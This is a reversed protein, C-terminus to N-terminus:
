RWYKEALKFGIIGFIIDFIIDINEELFLPHGTGFGLIYEAIEFVIEFWIFKKFDKSIYKYFIIGKLFHAFSWYNILILESRYLTTNLFAVVNPPISINVIKDLLTTGSETVNPM